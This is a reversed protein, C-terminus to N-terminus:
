KHSSLELLELIRLESTVLAGIATEDMVNYSHAVTPRIPM